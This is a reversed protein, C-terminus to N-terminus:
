IHILSLTSRNPEKLRNSLATLIIRRVAISHILNGDMDLLVGATYEEEPTGVYEQVIFENCQKLLYEGFFRLEEATQALFLNASGGGGVSPKVVAPLHPFAELEEKNTIRAYAPSHFGNGAIFAATKVKDLCIDLVSSPQIPLFLGSSAFAERHRDIVRIEAESGCLVARVRYRRCLELLIPIFAPDRAPPVREAHDVEALGKSLLSMDTGIIRYPTSALRLAKILQEGLGGGGVATVLVPIPEM